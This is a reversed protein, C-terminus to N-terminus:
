KVFISKIQSNSLELAEGLRLNEPLELAGIAVRELENVGLDVVGFM